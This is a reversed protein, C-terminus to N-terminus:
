TNMLENLKAELAMALSQKPSLYGGPTITPLFKEILNRSSKCTAEAQNKKTTSAFEADSRTESRRLEPRNETQSLAIAHTRVVSDLFRQLEKRDLKGSGDVDLQSFLDQSEESAGTIQVSTARKM